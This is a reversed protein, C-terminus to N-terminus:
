RKSEKETQKARTTVTTNQTKSLKETPLSNVQPWDGKFETCSNICNPM